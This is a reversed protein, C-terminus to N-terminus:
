YIRVSAMEPEKGKKDKVKAKMKLQLKKGRQLLDDADADASLCNSSM